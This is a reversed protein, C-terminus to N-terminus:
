RQGGTEGPEGEVRLVGEKEWGLKKKGLGCRTVGQTDSENNGRKNKTGGKVNNKIQEKKKEGGWGWEAGKGAKKKIVMEKKRWFPNVDGTGGGCHHLKKPTKMEGGMKEEGGGISRGRDM